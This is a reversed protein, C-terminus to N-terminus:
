EFKVWFLFCYESCFKEVAVFAMYECLFLKESSVFCSILLQVFVSALIKAVTM